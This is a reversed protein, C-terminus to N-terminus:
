GPVTSQHLTVKNGEPDDLSSMKCVPTEYADSVTLGSARLTTILKELDEVEFAVGVGTGAPRELWEHTVLAFATSGLHAENYQEKGDESYAGAFHLGLNKEYWARTAAVDNCPYGTFAIDKIM